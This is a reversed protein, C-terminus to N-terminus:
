NSLRSRPHLGFALNRCELIRRLFATNASADVCRSRFLRVRRKSFNGFHAERVPKLDDTVDATLPVVKLFVRDHQDAATADLIERTHTVVKDTAREIQLADLVALLGSRFVAGLTGLLLRRPGPLSRDGPSTCNLSSSSRKKPM